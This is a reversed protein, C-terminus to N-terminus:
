QKGKEKYKPFVSADAITQVEKPLTNRVLKGCAKCNMQKLEEASLKKGVASIRVFEKFVKNLMVTENHQEKEEEPSKATAGEIAAM